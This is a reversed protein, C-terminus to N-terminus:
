VHPQVDLALDHWIRDNLRLGDPFRTDCAAPTGSFNRYQWRIVHSGSICELRIRREIRAERRPATLRNPWMALASFSPASDHQDIIM